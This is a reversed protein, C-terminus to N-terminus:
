PTKPKLIGSKRLEEMSKVIDEYTGMADQKKALAVKLLTAVDKDKIADLGEDVGAIVSVLQKKTLRTKIWGFLGVLLTLIYEGGPIKTVGKKALGGFFSLSEHEDKSNQIAQLANDLSYDSVEASGVAAILQVSGKEIVSAIGHAEEIDSTAQIKQAGKINIANIISDAGTVCGSFCLMAGVLVFLWGKKWM